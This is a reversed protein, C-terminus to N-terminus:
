FSFQGDIIRAIPELPPNYLLRALAPVVKEEKNTERERAGANPFVELMDRSHKKIILGRFIGINLPFRGYPM